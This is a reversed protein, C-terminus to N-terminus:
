WASIGSIQLFKWVGDVTVFARSSLASVVLHCQNAGVTDHIDDASMFCDTMDKEPVDFCFSSPSAQAFPYTFVRNSLVQVGFAIQALRGARAPFTSASRRANARDNSICVVSNLQVSVRSGSELFDVEWRTAAPKGSRKISTSFHFRGRAEQQDIDAVVIVARKGIPGRFLADLDDDTISLSDRSIRV